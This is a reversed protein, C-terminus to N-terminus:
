DFALEERAVDLFRYTATFLVRDGKVRVDWDTGQEDVFSYYEGECLLRVHKAHEPHMVCSYSNDRRIIRLTGWSYEKISVTIM